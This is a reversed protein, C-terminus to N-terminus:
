SLPVLFRKVIDSTSSNPDNKVHIGLLEMINANTYEKTGNICFNTNIRSSFEYVHVNKSYTILGVNYNDPLTEIVNSLEERIAAM